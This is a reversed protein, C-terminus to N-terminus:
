RMFDGVRGAVKESNLEFGAPTELIAIRLPQPFRQAITEFVRGGAPSTEGSGLLAIPGCAKQM